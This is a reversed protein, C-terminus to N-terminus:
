HDHIVREPKPSFIILTLLTVLLVVIRKDDLTNSTIFATMWAVVAAILYFINYNVNKQYYSRIGVLVPLLVFSFIAAFGLLGTEALIKLYGSETGYYVVENNILYYGLDSHKIQYDRYNGVGIGFFPNLEFVNYAENWISSRVQYSENVGEERNLVAFYKPNYTVITLSLFSCIIIFIRYKPKGTLFIVLLGAFLGLLGARGGTSFLVLIMAFFIIRGILLEKKTEDGNKILFLFCTMALYQAYIQADFFFSPYRTMGSLVTNLHLESYFSFDLGVFFQISVFLLSVLCIIRIFKIVTKVFGPQNLLRELLLKAFVFVSIYKSAHLISKSVFESQLCGIILITLFAWFLYHYFSKPNSNFIFDRILFILVYFSIGDFVSISGYMANTINIDVFPYLCFVTMLYVYKKDTTRHFCILFVSCSLLGLIHKLVM